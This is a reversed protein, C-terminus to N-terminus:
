KNMPMVLYRMSTDSVSEMVLPRGIGAFHLVLSEGVFHSLPDTLYKQNFSLVLDEGEISAPIREETRGSEGSDSSVVLAREGKEIRFTVQLFKNAFVNTMKLAHLLDSALLTIHTAFEKPIIQVYDPFSGETLRTAIYTGDPFRFAVQGEGIVCRPESGLVELVRAIELANKQPFLLPNELSFYQQSVTKEMLRFSDTAVFTLTHEKKQQVLISGLEPKITSLSVAFAATRIGLAFQAADVRQSVGELEKIHPFEEIPFTTITTHSGRSSVVCGGGEITLIVSDDVILGVTQLLLAGPVAYVGEKKVHATLHTTISIELNTATLIVEDGKAEIRVCQLIPLTPHKIAVRSLLELKKLLVEKKIEIHM